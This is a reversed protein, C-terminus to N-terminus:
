SDRKAEKLQKLVSARAVALYAGVVLLTLALGIQVIEM